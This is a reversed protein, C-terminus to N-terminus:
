IYLTKKVGQIASLSPLFFVCPISNKQIYTSPSISIVILLQKITLYQECTPIHNDASFALLCYCTFILYLLHICFILYFNQRTRTGVVYDRCVNWSGPQVGVSHAQEGTLWFFVVSAWIAWFSWSISGIAIIPLTWTFSVMEKGQFDPPRTQPATESHFRAPPSCGLYSEALISFKHPPPDRPYGRQFVWWLELM